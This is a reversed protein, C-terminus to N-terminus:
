GGRAGFYAAAITAVVGFITGVIAAITALRERNTKGEEAVEAVGLTARASIQAKELELRERKIELDQLALQNRAEEAAGLREFADTNRELRQGIETRWARLEETTAREAANSEAVVATMERTLDMMAAEGSNYLLGEVVAVDDPLAQEIRRLLAREQSPTLRSM